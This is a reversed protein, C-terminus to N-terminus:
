SVNGAGAAQRGVDVQRLNRSDNELKPAASDGAGNVDVKMRVLVSALTRRLHSFRLYATSRGSGGEAGSFEGNVEPFIIHHANIAVILMHRDLHLEKLESRTGTFSHAEM